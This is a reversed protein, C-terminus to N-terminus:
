GSIADVEAEEGIIRVVVRNPLCVISQNIKSIGGQKICLHNHCDAETIQAVGQNITIKNQHGDTQIVIEQDQSLDYSGYVQGSTTVVM